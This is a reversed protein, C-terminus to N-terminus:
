EQPLSMTRSVRSSRTCGPCRMSSSSARDPAKEPSIRGLFAVYGGRVSMVYLQREGGERDSLFALQTGDDSWRPASDRTPGRTFEVTAGRETPAIHITSRYEDKATDIWTVVYAVRTGDPSIDVEPITKFALLDAPDM